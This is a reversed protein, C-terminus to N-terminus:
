SVQADREVQVGYEPFIRRRASHSASPHTCRTAASTSFRCSGAEARSRAAREGDVVTHVICPVTAAARHVSVACLVAGSGSHSDTTAPIPQYQVPRQVVPELLEAPRLDFNATPQDGYCLPPNQQNRQATFFNVQDYNLSFGGRLVTKGNGTPDFSFGFNPSFQWPSNKTFQRTVGPDGYYRAGAPANPYVTSVQNALFAAMSFEVGRNFYDVPMFNPAWRLGGTVTLRPSARYTDQFYLSPVPGRLANQQQKSQQFASM